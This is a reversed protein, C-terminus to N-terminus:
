SFFYAAIMCGLDLNRRCLTYYDAVGVLRSLSVPSICDAEPYAFSFILVRTYDALKYTLLFLVLFVVTFVWWRSFFKEFPTAPLM